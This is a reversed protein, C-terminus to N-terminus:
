VPWYVRERCSARGIQMLLYSARQQPEVLMAPIQPFPFEMGGQAKAGCVGIAICLVILFYRLYICILKM